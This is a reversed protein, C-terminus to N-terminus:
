PDTWPHIHELRYRGTLMVGKKPEVVFTIAGDHATNLLRAGIRRYRKMVRPRPFHYRNLYGTSFVVYHPHVARVFPPTSSSDSGHHPAILVQ